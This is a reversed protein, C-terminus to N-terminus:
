GIQILGDFDAVGVGKTLTVMWGGFIGPVMESQGKRGAIYTPGSIDVGTGTSLELWKIETIRSTDNCTFVFHDTDWACDCNTLGGDIIAAVAAMSAAGLFDLPGVEYKIGDVQVAFQGCNGGTLSAWSLPNSTVCNSDCILQAMKFSNSIVIGVDMKTYDYTLGDGNITKQYVQIMPPMDEVYSGYLSHTSPVYLQLTDIYSWETSLFTVRSTTYDLRQNYFSEVVEPLNSLKPLRDRFRNFVPRGHADIDQNDYDMPNVNGGRAAGGLIKM